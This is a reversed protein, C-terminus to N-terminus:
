KAGPPRSPAAAAGKVRVFKGDGDPDEEVFAFRGKEDYQVRRDARGRTFSTDFAAERLVAGEYREWKDARGDNNTDDETRVLSQGRFFERHDVARDRRRSTVVQTEGDPSPAPYTWTDEVGDGRSSTGILTLTAAADFYEWRDVRGDDDTDAEGRIPQGGALYTWQDFRGDGNQDANLQILRGTFADYSPVARRQQPAEACGAVVAMCGAAILERLQPPMCLKARDIVSLITISGAILQSLIVRQTM